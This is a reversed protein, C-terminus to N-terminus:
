TAENWKECPNLRDQSTDIWILCLNTEHPTGTGDTYAVVGLIMILWDKRELHMGQVDTLPAILSVTQSISSGPDISELRRIDATLQLPMKWDPLTPSTWVTMVLRARATRAASHGTNKLLITATPVNHQILPGLITAEQVTIRAREVTRDTGRGMLAFLATALLLIAFLAASRVFFSRTSRGEVM